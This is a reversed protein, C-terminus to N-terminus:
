GVDSRRRLLTLFAGGLATVLLATLGIGPLALFILGSQADPEAFNLYVARGEYLSWVVIFMLMLLPTSASRAFVAIACAALVPSANFLFVASVFAFAGMSHVPYALLAMAAALAIIAVVATIINARRVTATRALGPTLRWTGKWWIAVITSLFRGPQLRGIASM